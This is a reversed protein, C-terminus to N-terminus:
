QICEYQVDFSLSNMIKLERNGGRETGEDGGKFIVLALKIDFEYTSKKQSSM